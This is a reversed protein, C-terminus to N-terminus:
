AFDIKGILPPMPCDLLDAIGRLLEAERIKVLGDACVSAACAKLIEGRRHVSARSLKVLAADLGAFSCEKAPLLQLEVTPLVAAAAQFATEVDGGDHGVRALISLLLSLEPALKGLRHYLTSTPEIPV